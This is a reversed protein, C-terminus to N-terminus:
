EFSSRGMEAVADNEQGTALQRKARLHASCVHWEHWRMITHVSRLPFGPATSFVPTGPAPPQDCMRATHATSVLNLTTPIAVKDLEM